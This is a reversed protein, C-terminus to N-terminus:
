NNEVSSHLWSCAWKSMAKSCAYLLYVPFVPICTNHLNARNMLYYKIEIKKIMM